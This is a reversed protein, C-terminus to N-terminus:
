RQRKGSSQERALEIDCAAPLPISGSHKSERIHDWTFQERLWAAQRIALAPDHAAVRHGIGFRAGCEDCVVVEMTIMDPAVEDDHRLRKASGHPTRRHLASTNVPAIQDRSDDAGL